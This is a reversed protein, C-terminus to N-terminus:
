PADMSETDSTDVVIEFDLDGVMLRPALDSGFQAGLQRRIRTMETRPNLPPLWRRNDIIM